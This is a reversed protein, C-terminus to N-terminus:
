PVKKGHSNKKKGAKAFNLALLITFIERNTVPCKNTSLKPKTLDSATTHLQKNRGNDEQVENM